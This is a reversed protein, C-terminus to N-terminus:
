VSKSLSENKDMFKNRVNKKVFKLKFKNLVKFVM